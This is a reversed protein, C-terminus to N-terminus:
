WGGACKFSQSDLGKETPLTCLHPLLVGDGKLSHQVLRHINGGQATGAEAGGDECSDLYSNLAGRILSRWAHAEGEDHAQLKLTDRATLVKFFAPSGLTADPVVDRISEIPYTHRLAKQGDQVRFARLAELSLSFVLPTWTREDQSLYLVAEKIAEPEPESPRTWDLKPQEGREPGRHEPSSPASSPPSPADAEGGDSPQLVEWQDDRPVPRCKNVAEIIRDVWDEAEDRSPARLYLRKGPFALEFRGDTAAPRIDECRLLFCNDCCTREEANLYLRFEFPSLECYYERWMGM